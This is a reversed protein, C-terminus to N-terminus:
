RSIRTAVSPSPKSALSVRSGGQPPPFRARRSVRVAEAIARIHNPTTGCCWGRHERARKRSSRLLASTTAPQEDYERLCQPTRRESLQLCLYHQRRGAGGCHPRMETAGLSCNVGVSLPNAHCVSHWFADLTQGSLTRGSADSITVSVMIPLTIGTKEFAEDIAVLAAKANLTDFVTEVLLIDVGGEM